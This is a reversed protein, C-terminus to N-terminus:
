NHIILTFLLLSLICGKPSGTSLSIVNSLFDLLWNCLPTSFGIGCCRTFKSPALKSVLHQLIITNFASSFDLFLMRVHINRGELHQLSLHLPSLMRQPANQGTLLHPPFDSSLTTKVLREFCKMM